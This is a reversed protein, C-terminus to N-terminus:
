QNTAFMGRGGPRWQQSKNDSHSTKLHKKLTLGAVAGSCQRESEEGAGVISPLLSCSTFLSLTMNQTSWGELRGQVSWGLAPLVIISALSGSLLNLFASARMGSVPWMFVKFQHREWGRHNWHNFWVHVIQNWEGLYGTKTHTGAYSYMWWGNGRESASFFDMIIYHLNLESALVVRGGM